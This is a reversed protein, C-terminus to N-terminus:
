TTHCVQREIEIFRGRQKVGLKFNDHM